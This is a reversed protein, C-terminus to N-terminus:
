FAVAELKVGSLGAYTLDAHALNAGRLDADLYPSWWSACTPATCILM